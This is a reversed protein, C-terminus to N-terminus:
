RAPLACSHPLHRQGRQRPREGSGSLRQEGLRRLGDAHRLVQRVAHRGGQAPGPHRQLPPYGDNGMSAQAKLNFEGSPKATTINLAGGSSNRGFLTGQPGRLVEISEIDIIDFVGGVTKSMYMGDIYVGVKPDVMLSTEGSGVGRIAISTNSNSSPQKNFVTNPAMASIDTIDFIGIEEVADESFTTVAVPTEQLLTERRQATVLIEELLSGAKDHIEIEVQGYAEDSAVEGEEQVEPSNPEQALGPAALLLPALVGAALGSRCFAGIWNRMSFGLRDWELHKM